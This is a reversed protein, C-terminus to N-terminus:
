RAFVVLNQVASGFVGEADFLTSQTQGIGGAAIRTRADVGIWAGVAPRALFVSLDSNAFAFDAYPTEWSLGNGFDAAACARMAPSDEHDSLLPMALRLWATAPGPTTDSGGALRIEMGTAHFAAREPMGGFTARQTCDQPPPVKPAAPARGFDPVASPDGRRHMLVIAEAVVRAGEDLLQVHLRRVSRGGAQSVVPRLPAMPVPRPLEMTLRLLHWDADGALADEALAAILAAPAGGHQADARWPGAAHISPVVMAGDRHLIADAPM